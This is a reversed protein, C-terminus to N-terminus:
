ATLEPSGTTHCVHWWICRRAMLRVTCHPCGNDQLQASDEMDSIERSGSAEALTAKYYVSVGSVCRECFVRPSNDVHKVDILKLDSISDALLGHM